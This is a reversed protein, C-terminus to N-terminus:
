STILTYSPNLMVLAGRERRAVGEVVVTRGPEIGGLARRGTFVAHMEGTGVSLSPVGSRPVTRLRKVEGGIRLPIRADAGGIPTLDHAVMRQRVRDAELDEVSTALKRFRDKIGV